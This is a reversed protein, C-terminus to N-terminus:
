EFRWTKGTAVDRAVVLGDLWFVDLTRESLDVVLRDIESRVSPRDIYGMHTHDATYWFVKEVGSAFSLLHHQFYRSIYTSDSVAKPGLEKALALLGTETDWVPKSVGLQTTVDKLGATTDFVLSPQQTGTYLHGSVIDVRNHIPTADGTATLGLVGVSYSKASGTVEFGVSGTAVIQNSASVAKAAVSVTKILDALQQSTGWWWQYDAGDSNPENWVEIYKIQPYRTCLATIFAGLATMGGATPPSCLRPYYVGSFSFPSNQVGGTDSSYGPPVGILTYLLDKGANGAVWADLTAWNYAGNADPEIQDWRCGADHCRAAGHPMLAGQSFNASKNFHLGFRKATVATQGVYRCSQRVGMAVSPSQKDGTEVVSYSSGNFVVSLADAPIPVSPELLGGVTRAPITLM